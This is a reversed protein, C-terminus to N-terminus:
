RSSSLENMKSAAPLRVLVDTGEGERSTLSITGHHIEVIAKCISLGLGAGSATSRDRSDDAQYFRDFVHPLHHAPIGM